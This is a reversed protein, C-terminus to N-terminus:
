QGPLGPPPLTWFPGELGLASFYDQAAAPERRRYGRELRGNYWHAALRWLTVLSLRAGELVRQQTLWRDICADNCFLRQNACTHIVNNWMHRVPVLFHAVEGGEPPTSRNIVWALPADCAPCRTAVLADEVTAVLHPIAFSDWACGGWWLQQASMVAFGFSQTAFPHALVIAGSEDLAVHRHAALTNLALALHHADGALQLMRVLSPLAGTTALCDYICLRLDEALEDV